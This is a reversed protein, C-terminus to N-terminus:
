RIDDAHQCWGISLVTVAEVFGVIRQYLEDIM